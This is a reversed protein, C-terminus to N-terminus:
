LSLSASREPTLPKTQASMRSPCAPNVCVLAGERLNKPPNAWSHTRRSFPFLNWRCDNCHKGHHKM